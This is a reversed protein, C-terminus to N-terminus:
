TLTRSMPGYIREIVARPGAHRSKEHGRSWSTPGELKELLKKVTRSSWMQSFSSHTRSAWITVSPEESTWVSSSAARGWCHGRPSTSPNNVTSTSHTHGADQPHVRTGTTDLPYAISGYIQPQWLINEFTCLSGRPSCPRARATRSESIAAAVPLVPHQPHLRPRNSALRKAPVQDTSSAQDRGCGASGPMNGASQSPPQAKSHGIHGPYHRSLPVSKQSSLGCEETPLLRLCLHHATRGHLLIHADSSDGEGGAGSISVLSPPSPLQDTAAQGQATSVGATALKM